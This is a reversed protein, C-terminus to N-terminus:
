QISRVTRIIEDDTLTPDNVLVGQVLYRYNYDTPTTVNYDTPIKLDQANCGTLIGMGMVSLGIEAMIKKTKDKM